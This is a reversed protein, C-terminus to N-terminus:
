SQTYQNSKLSQVTKPKSKKLQHLERGSKELRWKKLSERAKPYAMSEELQMHEMNLLYFIDFGHVLESVIPWSQGDEIARLMPGLEIWNEELWGHDQFLQNAIRVSRLDDSHILSPFVMTEEQLHHERVETDFFHCIRGLEKKDSSQLRDEQICQVLVKLTNLHTNIRTHTHDLFEFLTQDPNEM